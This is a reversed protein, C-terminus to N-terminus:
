GKKKKIAQIYLDPYEENMDEYDDYSGDNEADYFWRIEMDNNKAAANFIDFINFIAQATASNYYVLSVEVITKEKANGAFYENLWQVVPLYFGFADGPFSKGEISIFANTSDLTVKPSDATAEIILNDM